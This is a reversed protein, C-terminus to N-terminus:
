CPQSYILNINLTILRAVESVIEDRLEKDSYDFDLLPIIINADM